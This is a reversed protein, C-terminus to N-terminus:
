EGLEKEAILLQLTSLDPFDALKSSMDLASKPLALKSRLQQFKFEIETLYPDENKKDITSLHAKIDKSPLDMEEFRKMVTEYPTASLDAIMFLIEIDTKGLKKFHHYKNSVLTTPLLINAAFHDAAREEDIEELKFIDPLDSLHLHWLEHAITFNQLRINFNTNIYLFKQGKGIACFGEAQADNLPRYIMKIEKLSTVNALMSGIFDQANMDALFDLAIMQAFKHTRKILAENNNRM